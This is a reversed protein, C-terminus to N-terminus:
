GRVGKLELPQPESAPLKEASPLDVGRKEAHVKSASEPRSEIFHVAKGKGVKEPKPSPVKEALPVAGSTTAAFALAVGFMLILRRSQKSAETM